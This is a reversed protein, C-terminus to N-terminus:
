PNVLRMGHLKEEMVNRLAQNGNTETLLYYSIIQFSKQSFFINEDQTIGLSFMDLFNDGLFMM